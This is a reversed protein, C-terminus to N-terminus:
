GGRHASAVNVPSVNERTRSPGIDTKDIFVHTRDTLPGAFWNPADADGVDRGVDMSRAVLAEAEELRGARMAFMVDVASLVYAVATNEDRTVAARLEAETRDAVPDGALLRDVAGWLLGMLVDIRRVTLFGARLLESALPM